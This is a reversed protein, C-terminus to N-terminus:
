RNSVEPARKPEPQFFVLDTPQLPKGLLQRAHEQKIRHEWLLVALSPSLAIQRRSHKSKPERFIYKGDRLQEM